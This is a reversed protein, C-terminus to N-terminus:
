IINNRRCIRHTFGQKKGINNFHILKIYIKYLIHISTTRYMFISFLLFNFIKVATTLKVKDSYNLSTHFLNYVQFSPSYFYLFFNQQKLFMYLKKRKKKVKCTGKLVKVLYFNRTSLISWGGFCVCWTCLHASSTALWQHAM